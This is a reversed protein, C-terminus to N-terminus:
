KATNVVKRVERIMDVEIRALSIVERVNDRVEKAQGIYKPDEQVKKINDMLIRSLEGANNGIITHIPKGADNVIQLGTNENQNNDEM